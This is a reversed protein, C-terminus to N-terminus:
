RGPPSTFNQSLDKGQGTVVLADVYNTQLMDHAHRVHLILIYPLLIQPSHIDHTNSFFVLVVFCSVLCVFVLLLCLLLCCHSQARCKISFLKWCECSLRNQWVSKNVNIAYKSSPGFYSTAASRKPMNFLYKVQCAWLSTEPLFRLYWYSKEAPIM